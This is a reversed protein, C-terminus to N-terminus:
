QKIENTSFPPPHIWHQTSKRLFKPVFSSKCEAHICGFCAYKLLVFSWLYKTESHRSIFFIKERFYDSSGYIFFLVFCFLVFCVFVFLCFLFTSSFLYLQMKSIFYFFTNQKFIAAFGLRKVNCFLTWIHLNTHFNRPRYSFFIRVVSDHTWTSEGICTLTWPKGVLDVM